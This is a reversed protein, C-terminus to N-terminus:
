NKEAVGFRQNGGDFVAFVQKLFVDGLIQPGSSTGQLGGLCQGAPGENGDFQLYTIDEGKITMNYDGIQLSLDPLATDCPYIYTNM